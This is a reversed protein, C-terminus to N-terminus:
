IKAEQLLDSKKVRLVKRLNKDNCIIFIKKIKEIREVEKLIKVVNFNDNIKIPKLIATMCILKFTKREIPKQTLIKSIRAVRNINGSHSVGHYHFVSASPEYILKM